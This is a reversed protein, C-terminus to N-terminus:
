QLVTVHHDHVVNEVRAARKGEGLIEQLRAPGARDLGADQEVLGHLAFHIHRRVKRAEFTRVQEHHAVAHVEGMAVALQRKNAHNFALTSAWLKWAEYRGEIPLDSLAM